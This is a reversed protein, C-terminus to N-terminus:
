VPRITVTPDCSFVEVLSTTEGASSTEPSCKQLNIEFYARTGCAVSYGSRLDNNGDNSFIYKLIRESPSFSNNGQQSEILLLFLGVQSFERFHGRNLCIMKYLLPNYCIINAFFFRHFHLASVTKNQFETLFFVRGIFSSPANLSFQFILRM